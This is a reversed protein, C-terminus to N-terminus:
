IAICVEIYHHQLDNKSKKSRKNVWNVFCTLQTLLIGLYVRTVEFCVVDGLSFFGDGDLQGGDYQLFHHEPDGILLGRLLAPICQVRMIDTNGMWLPMSQLAVFLFGSYWADREQSNGSVSRQM